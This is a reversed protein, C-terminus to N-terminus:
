KGYERAFRDSYQKVWSKVFHKHKNGKYGMHIILFKTRRLTELNVRKRKITRTVRRM